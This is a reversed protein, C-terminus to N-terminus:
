STLGATLQMLETVNTLAASDKPWCWQKGPKEVGSARLAKRALQGSLGIKEIISQLTVINEDERVRKVRSKRIKIEGNAVAMKKGGVMKEASAQTAPVRKKNRQPKCTVIEGGNEEFAKVDNELDQHKEEETKPKEKLELPLAIWVDYLLETRNKKWWNKVKYDRAFEKLQKVNLDNLTKQTYTM